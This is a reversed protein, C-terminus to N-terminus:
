LGRGKVTVGDGFQDSRQLLRNDVLARTLPITGSFARAGPQLNRALRRSFRGGGLGAAGKGENRGPPAYSLNM